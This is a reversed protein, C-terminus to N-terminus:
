RKEVNWMRLKARKTIPAILNIASLVILFVSFAVRSTNGDSTASLISMLVATPLAFPLMRKIVDFDIMKNKLAIIIAIPCSLVFGALNASQAETQDVAMLITLMPILVCGGGLGMGTVVGAALGCLIYSLYQM